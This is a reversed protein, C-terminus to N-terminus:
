RTRPRPACQQKAPRCRPDMRADALEDALQRNRDTMRARVEVGFAGLLGEVLDAFVEWLEPRVFLHGLGGALSALEEAWGEVHEPAVGVLMVM